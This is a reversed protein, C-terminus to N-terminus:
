HRWPALILDQNVIVRLPWGPRVTITPKIDLGRAVLQSGADGGSQQASQRLARVLDSEGGFSLETGVGLLTSLLAGKALQWGHADVRDRLGANGSADSAPLDNLQLSSGDPMVLRKWVLLARTQGYGVKSDYAGILRAGQPIMLTRGTASDYVNETVQAIAIGPLDSNLGTVLSAAIITGASIQWPSAPPRLRHESGGGDANGGRVEHPEASLTSAEAGAGAAPAAATIPRSSLQALVGAERASRLEAAHRQRETEAPQENGSVESPAAALAEAAMAEEHRLIPRGLDGPLPPGLKPVGSPVEGYSGPLAALGDPPSKRANRHLEETQGALRLGAPQLALWTVAVLAASGLAAAGILLGRRFRVVPRPAGRLVLTEPDLKAADPAAAGGPIAAGAGTV